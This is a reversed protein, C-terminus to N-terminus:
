VGARDTVSQRVGGRALQEFTTTMAAVFKDRPAVSARRAFVDFGNREIQDLIGRYLTLALRVTYQSGSSLLDIGPAAADYMARVRAIEFEMLAVFQRDIVGDVLREESYGFRAIDELPLYIRGMRADEGVDRLINTMQMARGLAAGYELAGESYGLVPSTLLGVTSAVLYCYESLEDYTNYRLVKVDRRAGELLQLAPELPIGYAVVSDALAVTLPHRPRGEFAAITHEQWADLSALRDAAAGDRDVMDDATRCFAYVSWIARRKPPSLFLSALYFTKSHHRTLDRCLRFSQELDTKKRRLLRYTRSM